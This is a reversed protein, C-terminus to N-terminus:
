AAEHPSLYFFYLRTIGEESGGGGGGGSVPVLQLTAKGIAYSYGLLCHLFLILKEMWM